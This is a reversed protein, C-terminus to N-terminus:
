KVLNGGFPTNQPLANKLALLVGRGEGHDDSEHCAEIEKGIKLKFKIRFYPYDNDEGSEMYSEVIIQEIENLQIKRKRNFCFLFKKKRIIITEFYQDYNITTRITAFILTAFGVLPFVLPVFCYYITVKQYFMMFSITGGFLIIYINCFIMMFIGPNCPTKYIIRTGDANFQQNVQIQLPQFQNTNENTTYPNTQNGSNNYDDTLPQYYQDGNM